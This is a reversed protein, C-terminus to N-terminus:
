AKKVKLPIAHVMPKEYGLKKAVSLYECATPFRRGTNAQFEEVAMLYECEDSSYQRDSTVPYGKGNKSTSRKKRASIRSLESRRHNVVESTLDPIKEDDKIDM